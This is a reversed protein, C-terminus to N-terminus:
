KRAEITVLRTADAPSPAGMRPMAVVRFVLINDPDSALPEVAWRRVYVASAPPSPGAGVWRGYGDLYDVYGRTDSALTGAPSPLLGPGSDDAPERTLDATVDSFSMSIAPDATTIQSWALSRLQEMKEGALLATTTRVRAGHSARIAVAVIHAGGAAVAVVLMATILVEVLAFGDRPPSPHNAPVPVEQFSACHHLTRDV